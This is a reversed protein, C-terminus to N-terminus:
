GKGETPIFPGRKVPPQVHLVPGDLLLEGRDNIPVVRLVAGKEECLLQWPVINSHHELHTLM